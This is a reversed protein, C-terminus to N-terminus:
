ELVGLNVRRYFVKKNCKPNSCTLLISIKTIRIRFDNITECFPCAMDLLFEESWADELINRLQPTM